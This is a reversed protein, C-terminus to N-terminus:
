KFKKLNLNQSAEIIEIEFHQQDKKYFAYIEDSWYKQMDKNKEREISGNRWM